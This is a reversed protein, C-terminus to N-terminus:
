NLKINFIRALWVQSVRKQCDMYLILSNLSEVENTWTKIKQCTCEVPTSYLTCIFDYVLSMTQRSCLSILVIQKTTPLQCWRMWGLFECIKAIRKLKKYRFYRLIINIHRCAKNKCLLNGRECSSPNKKDLKVIKDIYKQLIM